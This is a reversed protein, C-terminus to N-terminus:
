VYSYESFYFTHVGKKRKRWILRKSAENAKKTTFIQFISLLVLSRLHSFAYHKM